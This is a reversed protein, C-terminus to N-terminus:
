NENDEGNYLDGNMDDGIYNANGDENEVTVTDVPLSYYEYLIFGIITAFWLCLTVLFMIFWRKSTARIERIMETALTENEM